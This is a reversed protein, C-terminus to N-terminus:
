FVSQLEAVEIVDGRHVLYERQFLRQGSIVSHHTALRSKAHHELDTQLAGRSVSQPGEGLRARDGIDTHRSIHPFDKNLGNYSAWQDTARHVQEFRTPGFKALSM